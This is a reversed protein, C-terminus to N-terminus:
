AVMEGVNNSRGIGEPIRISRNRPDSEGFYIEAGAKANDQRNDIASGDTYVTIKEENADAHHRSDPAMTRLNWPSENTFIRFTDAITGHTTIRPDFGVTEEEQGERPLQNDEYDEPQPERPDWKEELADLLERAKCYCEHPNKCLTIVRTIRCASCRCYWVPRHRPADKKKGLAVADRVLRIKHNNRLCQVVEVDQNYVSRDAYSKRHYWIPMANQIERSVAMADMELGYKRGVKIMGALDKGISAASTKPFWSQLYANMRMEEAVSNYDSSGKIALIEDAVFCWLPRDPGF